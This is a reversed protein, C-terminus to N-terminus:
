TANLVSQQTDCVDGFDEQSWKQVIACVHDKFPNAARALVREAHAHEIACDTCCFMKGNIRVHSRRINVLNDCHTVNSCRVPM